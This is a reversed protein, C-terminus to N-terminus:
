QVIIKKTQWSEKMKIQLLYVGQTGIEIEGTYYGEKILLGDMSFLRYYISELTTNNRLQISENITLPNPYATIKDKVEEVSFDDEGGLSVLGVKEQRDDKNVIIGLRCPHTSKIYAHFKGNKEVHFGDQLHIAEGATFTIDANFHITTGRFKARQTVNKGSFLERKCNVEAKYISNQRANRGYAKDQVYAYVPDSENLIFNWVQLNIPSHNSYWKGKGDHGNENYAVTRNHLHVTNVNASFLADFPTVTNGFSFGHALHPYGFREDPDNNTYELSTKFMLGEDQLDYQMLGGNSSPNYNKIDHTLITPTFTYLAKYDQVDLNGSLRIKKRLQELVQFVTNVDDDGNALHDLTSTGGSCNDLLWPDKTKAEHEVDWKFWAKKSYKFV